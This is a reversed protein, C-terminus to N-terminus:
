CFFAEKRYHKQHWCKRLSAVIDFRCPLWNLGPRPLRALRKRLVWLRDPLAALRLGPRL